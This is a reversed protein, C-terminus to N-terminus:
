TTNRRNDLLVTLASFATHEATEKKYQPRKATDMWLPPKKREYRLRAQEAAVLKWANLLRRSYFLQSWTRMVHGDEDVRSRREICAILPEGAFSIRKALQAGVQGLARVPLNNHRQEAILDRVEARHVVPDVYGKQSDAAGPILTVEVDAMLANQDEPPLNADIAPAAMFWYVPVDEAHNPRIGDAYTRTGYQGTTLDMIFDRVPMDNKVMSNYFSLPTDGFLEAVALRASTTAEPM